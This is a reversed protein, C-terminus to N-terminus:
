QVMDYIFICFRCNFYQVADDMPGASYRVRIIRVKSDVELVLENM